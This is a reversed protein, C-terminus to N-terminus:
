PAYSGTHQSRCCLDYASPILSFPLSMAVYQSDDQVGTVQTPSECAAVTKVLSM